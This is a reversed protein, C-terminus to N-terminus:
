GNRCFQVQSGCMEHDDKMLPVGIGIEVDIESMLGDLEPALEDTLLRKEQLHEIWNLRLCQHIILQRYNGYIAHTLELEEIHWNKM